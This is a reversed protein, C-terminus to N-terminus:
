DKSSKPTDFFELQGCSWAIDKWRDIDLRCCVIGTTPINDIDEDVLSNVFETLGPNHGFLLAVEHEVAHDKLRKITALLDESSAHYLEPLVEIQNGPFNLVEAFAVCTTKARVAGSTLMRNITFDREKLRKAMRPADRQGRENLPRHFDDLEPRDWSSKAHRVVILTKM